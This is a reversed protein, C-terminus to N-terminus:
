GSILSLGRVAAYVEEVGISNMCIIGKSCKRSKCPSCAQAEIVKISEAAVGRYPGTRKPSTAGYMAVIPVGTAVAIHLPGTDGSIYLKANKCLAMLEKISTQGTLNALTGRGAAACTTRGVAEAITAANLMDGKAGVLVVNEGQLLLRSILEVYKEQPWQKTVWSCAPAVVLYEGGNIKYSALKDRMAAWQSQIDPLEFEPAAVKAGLYRIVDLYREMVHENAHAGKIPKTYYQSGEKMDSYGVRRACGTMYSLVVSKILGQLDIVLDFKRARLEKRLRLAYSIKEGLRGKSWIRYDWPIVEDVASIGEIIEAFEKKVIWAIHATPYLKRLAVACPIAQVVDGLASPKIILINKPANM